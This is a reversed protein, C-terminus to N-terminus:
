PVIVQLSLPLIKVHLDKETKWPDGDLHIKKRRKRGVIIEKARIIEVYRTRHFQKLFFAPALFVLRFFPVKRVICLDIFGDDLEAVPDISANSGFQNSNAFSIFLAKRTFENGDAVIRYNKQKYSFYAPIAIKAYSMFGRTSSRAFKKAVYADFGVGALSVFLRGNLTATDIPRAKGKNIIRIAARFGLPLGLHRALGNGSGTPIIGLATKTGALGRAVENVTGDGGVAVVIEAGRGAAERALEEAHGGRDTRLVEYSVMSLDTEKAIVKEICSQKRNGSIPNIIYTIKKKIEPQQEM